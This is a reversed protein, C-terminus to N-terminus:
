VSLPHLIKKYIGEADLGYKELLFDRKGHPVFASPLGLKVVARGMVNEVATGFGCDVVGEEACFIHEFREGLNKLLEADLPRAFRANVVTGSYGENVLMECAELGPEVMSGFAILCFDDGHRLIEPRGLEIKSCTASIKECASKPYRIAVPRDLNFAFSLMEELERCDRPSMIVIEPISHLYGIDLIGQHTAGDEGSIGARDLAFIVPLRQLAVDEVM